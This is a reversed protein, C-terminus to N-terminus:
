MPRSTLLSSHRRTVDLGLSKRRDIPSIGGSSRSPGGTAPAGGLPPWGFTAARGQPAARLFLDHGDVLIGGSIEFAIEDSILDVERRAVVDDGVQALVAHHDHLHALGLPLAAPQAVEELGADLRAVDHDERALERRHDVRAQREHLGEVDQRLLGLVFNQRVDRALDHVVDLATVRESIRQALMGLGEGVEVDVHDGRALGATNEVRDQQQGQRLFPGTESPPAKGVRWM